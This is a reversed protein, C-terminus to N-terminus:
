SKKSGQKMLLNNSKMLNILSLGFKVLGLCLNQFKKAEAGDISSRLHRREFIALVGGIGWRSLDQLRLFLGRNDFEGFFRGVIFRTPALGPPPPPPPSALLIRAEAPAGGLALKSWCSAGTVTSM